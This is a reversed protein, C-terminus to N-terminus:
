EESTLWDLAAERTKFMPFSRGSFAQLQEVAQKPFAEAGVWASRKVHAKNFVATERMVRFGEENMTAGTFDSLILLSGLPQATVVDPVQRIIQEVEGAACHSLDVLLVRQRGHSIFRIRPNLANTMAVSDLDCGPQDCSPRAVSDSTQVFPLSM